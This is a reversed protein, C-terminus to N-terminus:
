PKVTNITLTSLLTGNAYIEIRNNGLNTLDMRLMKEPVFINDSGAQLIFPADKVLASGGPGFHTATIKQGYVDDIKLTMANSFPSGKQVVNSGAIVTGQPATATWIKGAGSVPLNITATASGFPIANAIQVDMFSVFKPEAVKVNLVGIVKGDAYIEIRNIGLYVLDNRYMKEPVYIDDSGAQLKFPSNPTLAAGGPGFHTTTIKQTSVNAIKLTMANSFPSGPINNSGTIVTGPTTTATWFIGVDKKVPFNITATAKGPVNGMPGNAIQVDLIDLLEPEIPKPSWGPRLTFNSKIVVSNGQMQMYTPTHTYWHGDWITGQGDFGWFATGKEDIEPFFFETGCPVEQTYGFDGGPNPDWAKFFTVTYMITEAMPQIVLDKTVPFLDNGGEILVEGPNDVEEWAYLAEECESFGWDTPWVGDNVEGWPIVGGHEVEVDLYVPGGNRAQVKVSYKPTEVEFCVPEVASPKHAQFCGFTCQWNCEVKYEGFYYEYSKGSEFPFFEILEGGDYTITAKLGFVGDITTTTSTVCVDVGYLSAPPTWVVVEASAAKVGVADDAVNPQDKNCASFIFALAVIFSFFSFKKM